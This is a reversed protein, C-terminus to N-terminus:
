ASVEEQEAALRMAEREQERMLYTEIRVIEEEGAQPSDSAHAVNRMIIKKDGYRGRLTKSAEQYGADDPAILAANTPGLLERIKAVTGTPGHIFMVIVQSSMMFEEIEPYFPRSLLHAYHARLVDRTLNIREMKHIEIGEVKAILEEIVIQHVVGEEVKRDMADPKIIILSRETM